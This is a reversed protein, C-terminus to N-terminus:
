FNRNLLQSIILKLTDKYINNEFKNILNDCDQFLLNIREMVDQIIGYKVLIERMSDIESFDLGNNAYFKNVLIKEEPLITSCLNNSKIFDDVQHELIIEKARIMMYTKKGEIIDNGIRKGVTTEDGIIDLLDDQLQFAIGLDYGLKKLILMTEDSCCTVAGGIMLSCQLLSATKLFTMEFYNESKVNINSNFEMDLAQGRCVEILSNSFLNLVEKINESQIIEKNALGVIVDGLLIAVSTDWKTHITPRNRRTPSNDMIDDHVLTFNHLLEIAISPKLGLYHNNSLMGVVLMTLVSRVRKGGGEILYLYPENLSKEPIENAINLLEDQILINIENLLNKQIHNM